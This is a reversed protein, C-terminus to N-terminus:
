GSHKSTRTATWCVKCHLASRPLKRLMVDANIRMYRPMRQLDSWSRFIWCGSVTKQRKSNRLAFSLQVCSSRLPKSKQRCVSSCQWNKTPWGHKKQMWLVSDAGNQAEAVARSGHQWASVQLSLAHEGM